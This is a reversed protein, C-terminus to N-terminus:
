RTLHFQQLSQFCNYKKTKVNYADQVSYVSSSGVVIHVIYVDCANYENFEYMECMTCNECMAENVVCSRFM